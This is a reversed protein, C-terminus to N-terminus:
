RQGKESESIRGPHIKTVLQSEFEVSGDAVCENETQPTVGAREFFLM